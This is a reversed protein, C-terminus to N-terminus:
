FVIILGCTNRAKLFKSKPLVGQSIRLEDVWIVSGSTGVSLQSSKSFGVWTGDLTKVTPNGYDIYYTFKTKAGDEVPEITVAFHHWKGDNMKVSTSWGGNASGTDARLYYNYSGDAQVLFPFRSNVATFFLKNEWTKMEDKVASGKMFFEITASKCEEGHMWQNPLTRTVTSKNACLCGKNEKRVFVSQDGNEVVANKWTTKDYAPAGTSQWGLDEYKGVLTGLDSDLPLYLLTDGTSRRLFDEVELAGKTIRLEDFAYAAEALGMSLKDNAKVGQWSGDVTKSFGKAYDVYCTVTMKANDDSHTIVAAVHHWCGDTMSVSTSDGCTAATSDARLYFKRSDDVQVLFPFMGSVGPRSIAIPNNWSVVESADEPVRIFFEITMDGAIWQSKFSKGVTACDLYGTNTERVVATQDGKKCVSVDEGYDTFSPEGTIVSGVDDEPREVTELNSDLPLYFLVEGDEPRPSPRLRMFDKTALVGKTIRLEDFDVKGTGKGGGLALNYNSGAGGKWLSKLTLTASLSHNIYIKATSKTADDAKPEITVAVHRWTGDLLTPQTAQAAVEEGIKVYTKGANNQNQIYFMRSSSKKSALNQKTPSDSKDLWIVEDWAEISANEGRRVFMELTVSTVDSGLDFKDLNVYLRGKDITMYKSAGQRLLNGAEDTVYKRAADENFAVSGGEPVFQIVKDPNCATNVVSLADTDFPFWAITEGDEVACAVKAGLVAACAAVALLFKRGFWGKRVSSTM